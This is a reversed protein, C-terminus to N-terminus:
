PRLRIKPDGKRSVLEWGKGRRRVRLTLPGLPTILTAEMEPRQASLVPAIELAGNQWRANWSHAQAYPLHQLTRNFLHYINGDKVAESAWHTEYFDLWADFYRPSKLRRTALNLSRAKHGHAFGLANPLKGQSQPSRFETWPDTFGEGYMWQYPWSRKGNEEVRSAMLFDCYKKFARWLEEDGPRRELYDIISDMALNAMWPKVPLHSTAHIGTGSGQDAFSGDPRQCQLMRGMAERAMTAYDEKGTYDWLFVLSRISAGDRGYAFRPWAHRDMWYWRSSISEACELLYPDGTELHGALMGITRFLPPAITGDMPYDHMRMTETAHDVAMDAVHYVDRVARRYHELNGTRYFYLLQAYPVEGEWHQGLFGEDFRGRHEEALAATYTQDIREDWADHAPLVGDPWLEGSVAYWWEPVTLQQIVPAVEGLSAQFRVTRAVGRPFRRDAAKVIFGDERRRHTSDGAIEVGEYPQYVLVDGERKLSGPHEASVFPLADAFNFSVGGAAFRAQAGDLKEDIDGAVAFGIVPTVDQQDRGEDFRHGNIHRCYFQVVGNAFVQLYVEGTIWDQYHLWPSKLIAKNPNPETKLTFNELTIPVVEICGAARYATVVPGSWLKELRVWEWWHLEGKWRLGVRVGLTRKGNSLTLENVCHPFLQRDDRQLTTVAVKVPSAGPAKGPKGFRVQEPLEGKAMAFMLRRRPVRKGGSRSDPWWAVDVTQTALGQLDAPLKANMPVPVSVMAVRAEANKEPNSLELRAVTKSDISLTPKMM